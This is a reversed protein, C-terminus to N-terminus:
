QIAGGSAVQIHSPWETHFPFGGKIVVRVDWEDLIATLCLPTGCPNKSPPRADVTHRCFVGYYYSATGIWQSHEDEMLFDGRIAGGDLLLAVLILSLWERQMPLLCWTNAHRHRYLSIPRRDNQNGVLIKLHMVAMRPAESFIVMSNFPGASGYLISTM